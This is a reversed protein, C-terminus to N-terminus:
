ERGPAAQWQSLVEGVEAELRALDEALRADRQVLGGFFDRLGPLAERLLIGIAQDLEALVESAEEMRDARLITELREALARAPEAGLTALHSKISHATRTAREPDLRALADALESRKGPLDGLMTALMELLLERDGAFRELVLGPDMVALRSSHAERPRRPEHKPAESDLDSGAGSIALREIVDSLAKLNIPKFLYDNMGSELGRERYENLAHATLGVIPLTRAGEGAEGARIRATAEFGNMGPMEVDMLVLDFPRRALQELAEQGNSAVVTQHGLRKLLQEAVLVNAPLDEVLLIRRSASPAPLRPQAVREPELRAVDGSAVRVRCHFVSGRGSRTDLGIAGDMMGVLQRAIALGLGTGGHRRRASEDVQTFADFIRERMSDPIGEGSDAVALGLRLAGDSLPHSWLRVAIGGADTFKIANGVLNIVIQTLRQRDARVAPALGPACELRLWLGKREAALRLTDLTQGLAVRPDFDSENLELRCAEIKSLDLIDNIIGLLHETSHQIVQVFERAQGEVGELLLLESLGLVANMPTRIEHSMRALFDSKAANAAEAAERAAILQREMARLDSIDASYVMGGILQGEQDLIPGSFIQLARGQFRGEESTTSYRLTARRTKFVEPLACQPCPAAENWLLRHCPLGIVPGDDELGYLELLGRSASVIRYDADVILIFGPINEFFARLRSTTRNLDATREAVRAELARNQEGIFRAQDRLQEFQERLQRAMGDFAQDLRNFESIPTLQVRREWRGEALREADSALRQMPAIIRTAMLVGLGVALLLVAGILLLTQRDHDRIAGMLDSEPLVVAVVWNLGPAPSFRNAQLYWTEGHLKFDLLRGRAEVGEGDLGEHLLRAATSVAPHTVDSAQMLSCGLGGPASVDPESSAAVLCGAEGMIFTQAYPTIEIGRLFYRIQTLVYDVGFVGRLEGEEDRYALAATLARDPIVFHRYIPTWVPGQARAAAEFWPRSRPDYDPYVDVLTQADGLAETTFYHSDGGTERGARVVQIAGDGMRRAGYFEGDVSGFYSYVVDPHASLLAHFHRQVNVPDDLRLLGARLAQANTANIHQPTALFDSLRDEIRLLVDARLRHAVENVAERGNEMALWATLATSLVTFLMVPVGILLRLSM